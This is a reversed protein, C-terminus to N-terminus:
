NISRPWGKIEKERAMAAKPTDFEQFWILRHCGYKSAFRSHFGSRHELVRRFINNTSGTYLTGTNSALIYAWFPM